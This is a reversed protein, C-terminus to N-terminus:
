LNVVTFYPYQQIGLQYKQSYIKKWGSKSYARKDIYFVLKYDQVEQKDSNKGNIKMMTFLEAGNQWVGSTLVFNSVELPKSQESGVFSYDISVVVFYIDDYELNCDGYQEIFEQRNLIDISNVKIDYDKYNFTEGKNYTRTYVKYEEANTNIYVIRIASVIVMVVAVVIGIIKNKM